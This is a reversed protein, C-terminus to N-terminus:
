KAKGKQLRGYDKKAVAHGEADTGVNKIYARVDPAEYPKGIGPLDGSVEQIVPRINKEVNLKTMGRSVEGIGSKYNDILVELQQTMSRKNLTAIEALKDRYDPKIRVQTYNM